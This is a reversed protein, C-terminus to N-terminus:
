RGDSVSAMSQHGQLGLMSLRSVRHRPRLSNRLRCWRSTLCYCLLIPLYRVEEKSLHQGYSASGPSSVDYLADVLGNPNSQVLAIRLKLTADADAAGSHVYGAPVSSRSERVLMNRAYPKAAALTFLSAVLVLKSVM